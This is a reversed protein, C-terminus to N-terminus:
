FTSLFPQQKLRKNAEEITMIHDPIDKKCIPCTPKDVECNLKKCICEAHFLCECDPALNPIRCIDGEKFENDCLECKQPTHINSDYKVNIYKLSMTDLFAGCLPALFMDMALRNTNEDLSLTPNFKYNEESFNYTQFRKLLFELLNNIFQKEM